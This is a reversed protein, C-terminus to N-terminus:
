GPLEPPPTHLVHRRQALVAHPRKAPHMRGRFRPSQPDLREEGPDDDHFRRRRLRRGPVQAARVAVLTREDLRTDYLVGASADTAANWRLGVSTPALLLPQLGAGYVPFVPPLTDRNEVIVTKTAPLYNADGLYTATVSLQRDAQRLGAGFTAPMLPDHTIQPVIVRYARYRMTGTPAPLGAAPAVANVPIMAQTIPLLAQNEVSENKVTLM